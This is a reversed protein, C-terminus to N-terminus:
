ASSPMRSLSRHSSNLRTSKRDLGGSGLLGALDALGDAGDDALQITSVHGAGDGDLVAAGHICLVGGLQEGLGVHVAAQDAARGQLGGVEYLDNVRRILLLEATWTM